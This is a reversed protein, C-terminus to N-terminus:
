GFGTHADKREMGGGLEYGTTVVVLLLRLRTVIECWNKANQRARDWSPMTTDAGSELLRDLM